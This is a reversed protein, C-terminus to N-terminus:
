GEIPVDAMPAREKKARGGASSVRRRLEGGVRTKVYILAERIYSPCAGEPLKQALRQAFRGKGIVEIDKLMQVSNFAAPTWSKARTRATESPALEVLAEKIMLDIGSTFLDIEFTHTGVFLGQKKAQKARHIAKAGVPLKEEGTFLAHAITAVRKNGDVKTRPDLDTIVAWPIDLAQLIKIYPLFHTGNIACVAIGEKDLDIEIKEALRPILLAEAFGEVLLVGRSFLIEGRTVDLYREL